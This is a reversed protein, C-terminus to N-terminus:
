GPKARRTFAGVRAFGNGPAGSCICPRRSIRHPLCRSGAPILSFIVRRQFFFFTNKKLRRSRVSWLWPNLPDPEWSLRGGGRGKLNIREKNVCFSTKPRAPFGKPDPAVKDSLDSFPWQLSKSAGLTALGASCLSTLLKATNEASFYVRRALSLPDPLKGRPSGSKQM